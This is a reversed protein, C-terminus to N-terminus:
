IDGALIKSVTSTSIGLADAIEANTYNGNAFAKARSKMTDTVTSAPKPMVHEKLTKSDTYRIIENLMTKGVAGADIAEWEKETPVLKERGGGFRNRAGALYQSKVKKYKEPDTNRINPNEKEFQRIMSAALMTAQRELPAHKKAMVVKTALDSVEKSYAKAASENVGKPIEVALTAKRAKNGLQHCQNAYRAYVEEMPTGSSIQRADHTGTTLAKMMQTTKEMVPKEKAITGDKKVYGGTTRGTETFLKEGTEPDIFGYKREGTKKDIYYGGQKREPVYAQGSARSILTKAGGSARGQWEKHLEAIRNDVFSKQYDLKHKEADIVVMSHKIARVLQDEDDCGMATMDTILNTVLGMKMGRNQKTMYTMGEREPYEAKNDFNVLAELPKKAVFDIGKTPIVLATDGDYDAGSLQAATKPNIGIADRANRGIVKDGEPNNKNNVTLVPIEHVSQHPFRILIVQEGDRYNPAYVENDKMNPLSRLLHTQQRPFAAGELDVAAGDCADAYDELLKKKIAPNKVQMIDDLEKSRKEIAANLQKEAITVPQKSLMQSSIYDKGSWEAWDGEENVKNIASLKKEGTVPDDYETQGVKAKIMAGFPNMTDINGKEDRQMPKLVSKGKPDSNTLPVGLHKNSYVQIDKGPPITDDYYAVGKIYHTGDVAIRVQAYKADGLNLDAVGRRIGIEGDKLVGGEEAYKVAIRSSDISVPPHELGRLTAETNIEPDFVPVVKEINKQIDAATTGPKALVSITTFNEGFPQKVRVNTLTYGDESVINAATDLM